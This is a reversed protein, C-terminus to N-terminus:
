STMMAEAEMLWVVAATGRDNQWNTPLLHSSLAPSFIQIQGQMQQVLERAISLGLGTGPIGTTSQVGRYHREFLHPLDEPPIGPGTDAIILCQYSTAPHAPLATISTPEGTPVPTAIVPSEIWRQVAVYIRGGAPTYKLANDLLNSVVERLGERDMQVPALSEAISTALILQRDQAIAAASDLLPQLVTIMSEAQLHITRGLLM